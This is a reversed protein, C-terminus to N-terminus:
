VLVTDSRGQELASRVQKEYAPNVYIWQWGGTPISIQSLEEAFVVTGLRTQVPFLLGQAGGRKHSLETYLAGEPLALKLLSEEGIEEKLPIAKFRSERKLLALADVHGVQKPDNAARRVAALVENDTLSLYTDLNSLSEQFFAQMFRALHFKYAKVTAYQYVRQHMFHRALL